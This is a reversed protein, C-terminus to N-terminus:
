FLEAIEPSEAKSFDLNSGPTPILKIVTIKETMYSLKSENFAISCNM